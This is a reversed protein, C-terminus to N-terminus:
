GGQGNCGGRSDVVVAECHLIYKGDPRQEPARCSVEGGAYQGKFIEVCSEKCSQGLYHDLDESPLPPLCGAGPSAAEESTACDKPPLELDRAWPKETSSGCSVVLAITLVVAAYQQM